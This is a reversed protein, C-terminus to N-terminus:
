SKCTTWNDTFTNQNETYFGDDKVKVNQKNLSTHVATHQVAM